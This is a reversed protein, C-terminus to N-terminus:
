LALPLSETNLSLEGVIASVGYLDGGHPYCILISAKM